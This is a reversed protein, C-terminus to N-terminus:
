LFGIYFLTSLFLLYVNLFYIQIKGDNDIIIGISTNGIIHIRDAMPTDLLHQLTLVFFEENMEDIADDSIGVFISSFGDYVM